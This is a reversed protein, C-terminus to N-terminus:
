LKVVKTMCRTLMTVTRGFGAVGGKYGVYKDQWKPEYKAKFRHLGSFSFFADGNAYAFQM